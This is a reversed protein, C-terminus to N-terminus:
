NPPKAAQTPNVSGDASRSVITAAASPILGSHISPLKTCPTLIAAKATM